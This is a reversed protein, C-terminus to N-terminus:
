AARRALFDLVIENFWAPREDQIPHGTQPLLCLEADPLLRYLEVAIEAPYLHDRDGHVILTPAHIGSLEDPEPFDEAHAHDALAIFSAMVWKWHEPGQAVHREPLEPFTGPPVFTEPTHARWSARLEESWYYSCASLVLACVLDPAELALTLLQKAGSSHGCFIAREQGLARCLGATDRAFQRHNMAALGAPNVTHGRGRCDPVVLRYRAGFAELQTAWTGRGNSPYGHLLVLVPGDATGLEEYYMRLDDVEAYPM